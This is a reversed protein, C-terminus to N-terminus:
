FNPIKDNHKSLEKGKREGEGKEKKGKREEERKEIREKEVVPNKKKVNRVNVSIKVESYKNM